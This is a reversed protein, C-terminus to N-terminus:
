QISTIIKDIIKQKDDNSITIEKIRGIIMESQISSVTRQLINIEEEAKPYHCVINFQKAKQM